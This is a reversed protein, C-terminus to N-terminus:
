FFIYINNENRFKDTAATPIALQEKAL